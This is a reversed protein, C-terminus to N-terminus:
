FKRSVQFMVQRPPGVRGAFFIYDATGLIYDEDTLNTGIVAGEWNGDLSRWGVRGNLLAYDGQQQPYGTVGGVGNNAASFYVKSQYRVDAGIYAEGM